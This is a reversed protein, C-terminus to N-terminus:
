EYEFTNPSPLPHILDFIVWLDGLVVIGRLAGWGSCLVLADAVFILEEYFVHM